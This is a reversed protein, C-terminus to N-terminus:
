VHARGIKLLVLIELPIPELKLVHNGRRLRRPRVDLEFDKGFRIPEQVGVPDSTMRVERLFFPIVGYEVCRRLHLCHKPKTRCLGYRGSVRKAISM